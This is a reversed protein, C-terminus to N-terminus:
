FAPNWAPEAEMVSGFVANGSKRAKLLNCDALKLLDDMGYQMTPFTSVVGISASIPVTREEAVRPPPISVIEEALIRALNVAGDLETNPLLLAFEDMGFRAVQDGPRKVTAAIARAVARLLEDAQLRGYASTYERFRNMDVMLLSLSTKERIARAWEVGLQMEFCHRNPLETLVDVLGLREITRLYQLIQVHTKIRALTITSHFPKTIYDVAGLNLGKEEDRTNDLSTIIIVPIDRTQPSEKLDALLAFGTRDPLVIDLLILDPRCQRIMTKAADATKAVFLTYHRGLIHTLLDIDASTDEVILINPKVNNSM